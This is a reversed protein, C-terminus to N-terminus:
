TLIEGGLVRRDVIYSAEEILELISAEGGHVKAGSATSLKYSSLQDPLEISALLLCAGSLIYSEDHDRCDCHLRRLVIKM